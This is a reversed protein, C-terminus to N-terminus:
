PVERRPCWKPSTKVTNEGCIATYFVYRKYGKKKFVKKKCYWVKGSRSKMRYKCSKCRPEVLKKQVEKKKALLRKILKIM